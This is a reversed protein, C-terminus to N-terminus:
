RLRRARIRRDSVGVGAMVGTLHANLRDVALAEDGALMAKMIADHEGSVRSWHRTRTAVTLDGPSWLDEVLKTMTAIFLRQVANGTLEGLMMHFRQSASALDDDDGLRYAMEQAIRARAGDDLSSVVKRLADTELVRRTDLLGSVSAKRRALYLSVAGEVLGPGPETVVLGGRTGRRTEALLHSEVLCVAERVVGRSVGYRKMLQAESGILTGAPLDAEIIDLEIARAVSEALRPEFTGRSQSRV